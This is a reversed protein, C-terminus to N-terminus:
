INLNISMFAATLGNKDKFMVNANRDLLVKVIEFNELMTAIHLPTRMLINRANIDAKYELLIVVINETINVNSNDNTRM